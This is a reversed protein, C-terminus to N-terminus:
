WMKSSIWGQCTWTQHWAYLKTKAREFAEDGASLLDLQVDQLSKKLTENLNRSKEIEQTLGVNAVELELCKTM